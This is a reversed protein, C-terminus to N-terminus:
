PSALMLLYCFVVSKFKERLGLGAQRGPVDGGRPETALAEAVIARRM